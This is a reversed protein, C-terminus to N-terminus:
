TARIPRACDLVLGVGGSDLRESVSVPSVDAVWREFADTADYHRHYPPHFVFTSEETARRRFRDFVETPSDGGEFFHDDYPKEPALVSIDDPVAEADTSGLVWELGLDSLARLTGESTESMPTFLGSPAVGTADEICDLGTSLYERARDYSLDGFAHHRHGHFVIEHGRADLEAITDALDDADRGLFAFGANADHELLVDSVRLYDAPEFEAVCFWGRKRIVHAAEAPDDAAEVGRSVFELWLEVERLHMEDVPKM